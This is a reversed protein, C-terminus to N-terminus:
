TVTKDIDLRLAAHVGDPKLQSVNRSGFPTCVVSGEVDVFVM